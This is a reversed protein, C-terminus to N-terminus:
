LLDISFKSSATILKWVFHAVSATTYNQM